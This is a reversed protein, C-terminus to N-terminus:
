GVLRGLRHCALLDQWAEETKGEKLRLMARCALAAAIGRCIQVNPVLAGILRPQSYDDVHKPLMPNYYQPRRSAAIAIALPKENRKLWGALEPEDQAQWPWHMAKSMRKDFEAFRERDYEGDKTRTQQIWYEGDRIFYEGQEPPPPAGLWQFHEPAMN